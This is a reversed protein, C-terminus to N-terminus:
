EDGSVYRLDAIQRQAAPPGILAVVFTDRDFQDGEDWSRLSEIKVYEVDGAALTVTKFQNWYLGESDVKIRYTGPTVDRYYVGGPESIGVKQDNLYIWPRALSEYPEYDRFFYVRAEGTAVAPLTQAVESYPTGPPGGACASTLLSAGLALAIMIRNM